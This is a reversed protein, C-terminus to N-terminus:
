NRPPARGFVQELYKSFDIFIGNPPTSNWYFQQSHATLISEVSFDYQRVVEELLNKKRSCSETGTEQLKGYFSAPLFTECTKIFCHERCQMKFFLISVFITQPRSMQKGYSTPYVGKKYFCIKYACGPQVIALAYIFM